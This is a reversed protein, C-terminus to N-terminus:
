GRHKDEWAQARLDRLADKDLPRNAASQLQARVLSQIDKLEDIFGPAAGPASVGAPAQVEPQDLVSDIEDDPVDIRVRIPHNKLRIPTIFHIQGERYIAELQM